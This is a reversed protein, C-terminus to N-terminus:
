SMHAGPARLQGVWSTAAEPVSGHAHTRWLIRGARIDVIGAPNEGLRQRAGTPLHLLDVVSTGAKETDPAGIITGAAWEGDSIIDIVAAGAPMRVWLRGPLQLTRISRWFGVVTGEFTSAGPFAGGKLVRTAPESGDLDIQTVLGEGITGNEALNAAVIHRGHLEAARDRHLTPFWTRGIHHTTGDLSTVGVMGTEGTLMTWVVHSGSVCVWGSPQLPIPKGDPMLETHLVRPATGPICVWLEASRGSFAVQWWAIIGRDVSPIPMSASAIGHPGTIVRSTGEPSLVAIDSTSEDRRRVVIVTGDVDLSTAYTRTAPNAVNVVNTVLTDVRQWQDFPVTRAPDDPHRFRAEAVTQPPEVRTRRRFLTRILQWIVTWRHEPPHQRYASKLAAAVGAAPVLLRPLTALLLSALIALIVVIDRSM